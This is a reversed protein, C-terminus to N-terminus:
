DWEKADKEETYPMGYLQSAIVNGWKVKNKDEDLIFFSKKKKDMKGTLIFGGGYDATITPEPEEVSWKIEPYLLKLLELLKKNSTM